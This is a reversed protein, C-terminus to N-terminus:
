GRLFVQRTSIALGVVFALTEMTRAVAMVGDLPTLDIDFEIPEAFYPVEWRVHYKPIVPDAALLNLVRALDFPICFPFITTLDPSMVQVADAASVSAAPVALAGAVDTDAASTSVDVGEFPSAISVTDTVAVGTATDTATVPVAAEAALAQNYLDAISTLYDPVSMVYDGALFSEAASGLLDPANGIVTVDDEGPKLLDRNASWDEATGTFVDDSPLSPTDTAAGLYEQITGNYFPVTVNYQSLQDLQSVSFCSVYYFTDGASNVVTNSLQYVRGKGGSRVGVSTGSVNSVAYVYNNFGNICCVFYVNNSASYIWSSSVCMVSSSGSLADPKDVGEVPAPFTGNVALTIYNVPLQLSGITGGSSPPASVADNAFLWNGFQYILLGAAGTLSIRGLPSVHIGEAITSILHDFSGGRESVWQRMSQEIFQTKTMGQAASQETVYVNVGAGLLAVGVVGLTPGLLSGLAGLAPIGGTGIAGGAVAVTAGAQVASVRNLTPVVCLAFCLVLVFLRLAFRAIHYLNNKKFM